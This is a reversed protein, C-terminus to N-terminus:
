KRLDKLRVSLEIGKMLDYTRQMVTGRPPNLSGGEALFSAELESWRTTLADWEPSQAAMERIRPRWDPVADLLRLCRGLDSPDCPYYSRGPPVGMMVAWLQKSSLGTDDSVVWAHARRLQDETM